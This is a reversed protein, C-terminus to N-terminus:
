IENTVGGSTSFEVEALLLAFVHMHVMWELPCLEYANYMLNLM